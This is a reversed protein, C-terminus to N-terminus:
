RRSPSSPRGGTPAAMPCFGCDAPGRSRNAVFRLRGVAGVCGAGTRHHRRSRPAARDVVTSKTSSYAAAASRNATATAHDSRRAGTALQGPQDAYSRTTCRPLTCAQAAVMTSVPRDAASCFSSGRERLGRTPSRTTRRCPRPGRRPAARGGVRVRGAPVEREAGPAAREPRTALQVLGGDVLTSRSADPPRTGLDGGLDRRSPTSSTSVPTGAGSAGARGGPRARGAARASRSRCRRCRPPSAAARARDRRRHGGLRDAGGAM